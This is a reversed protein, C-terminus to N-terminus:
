KQKSQFHSDFNISSRWYFTTFLLLIIPIIIIILLILHYYNMFLNIREGRYTLTLFKRSEKDFEAKERM